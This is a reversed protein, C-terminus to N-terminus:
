QRDFLRLQHRIAATKAAKAQKVEREKEFYRAVKEPTPASLIQQKLTEMELKATEQAAHAQWHKKYSGFIVEQIRKYVWLKFEVNLWAAFDIALVECFYIGNRGRNDVIQKSLTGSKEPVKNKLDIPQQPRNLIELFEKTSSNKLYNDTRKRFVKAMETANVMVNNDLPNLLFHIEAEQYLFELTKM